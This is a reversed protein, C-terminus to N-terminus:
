KVIRAVVVAVSFDGEEHKGRGEIFRRIEAKTCSTNEAAIGVAYDVAKKSSSHLTVNVHGSPLTEVVANNMNM